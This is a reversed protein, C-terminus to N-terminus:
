VWGQVYLGTFRYLMYYNNLIIILDEGSLYLRAGILHGSNSQLNETVDLFLWSYSTVEGIFIYSDDLRVPAAGHIPCRNYIRGDIHVMPAPSGLSQRTEDSQIAPAFPAFWFGCVAAVCIILAALAIATTKPQLKKKINSEM